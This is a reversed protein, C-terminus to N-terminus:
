TGASLFNRLLAFGAWQSKEPHFQTGFVSGRQVVSVFRGCYPTYARVDDAEACALHYSHVFYFDRGDAIGEFLPSHQQFHVENWGVHPIKENQSTPRLPVADGAILGLGETVGGELGREALLQMGLCVGLLPIHDGRVHERLARVFGRRHLNAMAVSFSGVGPLIMHTATKLDAPDSSIRASGGCEEVARRMSDMNCMGYDIIVVNM